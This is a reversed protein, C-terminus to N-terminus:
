FGIYHLQVFQVTEHSKSLYKCLEFAMVGELNRSEVGEPGVLQIKAASSPKKNELENKVLVLRALIEFIKKSNQYFQVQNGHNKESFELLNDTTFGIIRITIYTWLKGWSFNFFKSDLRICSCLMWQKM